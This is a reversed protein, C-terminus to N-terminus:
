TLKNNNCLWNLNINKITSSTTKWKLNNQPQKGNKKLNKEMEKRKKPQRGNKNLDDEM